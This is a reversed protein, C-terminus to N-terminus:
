RKGFLLRWLFLFVIPLGIILGGIVLNFDRDKTLPSADFILVPVYILIFGIIFIAKRKDFSPKVSKTLGDNQFDAFKDNKM